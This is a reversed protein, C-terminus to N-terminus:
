VHAKFFKNIKEWASAGMIENLACGIIRRTYKRAKNLTGRIKNLADEM